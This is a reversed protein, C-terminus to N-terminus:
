RVSGNIVGLKCYIPIKPKLYMIQILEFIFERIIKFCGNGTSFASILGSLCVIAYRKCSFGFEKRKTGKGFVSGIEFAIDLALFFWLQHKRSCKLLVIM